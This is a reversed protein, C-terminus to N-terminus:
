RSPEELVTELSLPVGFNPTGDPNWTFKQARTTRGRYTYTSSTKGHYVIWDETGDPSRFFGHHGPASVGHADDREFVPQPHQKWSRPDLVDATDDASGDDVVIIEATEPRAELWTRVRQLSAGLRASENYAPIVVSIDISDAM